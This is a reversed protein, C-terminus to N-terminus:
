RVLLLKLPSEAETSPGERPEYVQLVNCALEPIVSQTERPNCFLDARIYSAKISPSTSVVGVLWTSPKQRLVNCVHHLM